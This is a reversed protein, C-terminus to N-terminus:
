AFANETDVSGPCDWFGKCFRGLVGAVSVRDPLTAWLKALALGIIAAASGLALPIWLIANREAAM